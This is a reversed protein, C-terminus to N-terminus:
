KNTWDIAGTKEVKKIYGVSLYPLSNVCVSSASARCIEIDKDPALEKVKDYIKLALESMLAHSIVIFDAGSAVFAQAIRKAILAESRSRGVFTKKDFCLKETKYAHAEPKVFITQTNIANDCLYAVVDHAPIGKGRLSLALRVLANLGAGTAGSRVLYIQKRPYKLLENGIARYCRAYEHDDASYPAIHILAPASKDLIDDFYKEYYAQTNEIRRVKNASIRRYARDFEDVTEPERSIGILKPALCFLSFAKAQAPPIDCLSNTSISFSM